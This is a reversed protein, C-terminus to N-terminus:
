ANIVECSYMIFLQADRSNACKKGQVGLVYGDTNLLAPRTQQLTNNAQELSQGGCQFVTLFSLPLIVKVECILILVVLFILLPLLFSVPIVLGVFLFDLVLASSVELEQVFLGLLEATDVIVIVIVFELLLAKELSRKVLDLRVAHELM